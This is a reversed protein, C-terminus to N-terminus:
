DKAGRVTENGSRSPWSVPARVMPAHGVVGCERLQNNAFGDADMARETWTEEFRGILFNESSAQDSLADGNFPLLQHWERILTFADFEAEAYVQQEVSLQHNFEFADLSWRGNM